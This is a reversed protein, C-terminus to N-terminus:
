SLGGENQPAATNRPTPSLKSAMLSPASTAAALRRVLDACDSRSFIWTEPACAAIRRSADVYRESTTASFLAELAEPEAEDLLMGLGRIALFRATETGRLAIPVRGFRCGEYLRNPLLWKSNQGEEFFDIAWTFHVDDYIANLDEPSRYPGHFHMFPENGIFGDFDDFESHAPRGRLVIEFRGEMRRSFASLLALSKRCRLAGFWGIRWPGDEPAVAPSVSPRATEENLELVKNELLMMPASIGSLPRFYHEVFAPSSTILLRVDRGLFAESARLTRGIMDPRLLLRHIDLCEYVIPVDGGLLDVAKSAVALMDLNRAIILDPREVNRLSQKLSLRSRAVASIRQFFRGDHTVGLEIPEIGEITALPNAGRRFGAVRVRAGGALLMLVRRRVAPDALDQAFYLIQLM